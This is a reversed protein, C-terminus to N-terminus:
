AHSLLPFMLKSNEFLTTKNKQIFLVDDGSIERVEYSSCDKPTFGLVVEDLQDNIFSDIVKDLAVESKCFVGWVHLRKANISAVVISDSEKLYYVHDKLFSICYFMVLDVNDAISIKGLAASHKAYDYLMDRNSQTAMNLKELSNSDAKTKNISKFHEYEKIQRFGFKPYIGLVSKNAFLYALECKNRWEELVREMLFRNLNRKRYDEDTMVTGIQIYHHREGLINFDMINVSVNAVAKQEDFLTYPIYNANWYGAEYWGEFSLGFVKQALNNFATRRKNDKQYGALFIFKKSQLDLKM